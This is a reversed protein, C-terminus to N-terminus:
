AIKLYEDLKEGSIEELQAVVQRVREAVGADVDELLESLFPLSEPLLVLYEERLRDVLQAVVELALARVRPESSRTLMLAGHNLPKWLADNNAAVALALLCGVAAAGLPGSAAAAGDASTYSRTAAGLKLYATLDADAHAPSRLLPMAAAPPEAELQGLLAPHLRAFREADIFSVSDHLCCRHLARVIRLRLLWALKVQAAAQDDAGDAAAAAAAEAEALAAAASARKLKKKGRRVGGAAGDDGGLHAIASDLLYRFYPVLVSRLRDTLANVAGYLAVMRGLYSPESGGEPVSVTSAWELLRLFLPKFRAESLKMTLAVLARVAAAEVADLAADGHAALAAPRRQRVDLARLLFNFLADAYQAAVKAEMAAAAAGVMDLLAVAPAAAAAAGGCDAAADICPQLREFLAPLLLRPPVAGPLAARISAAFQDCGAVRCALVRPNLLIALVAALHPSLFGGLSEVLANLCALASSLELAADDADSSASKSRRKKSKGSAGHEDDADSDADEEDDSDTIAGAAAEADDEDEDADAMAADAAAAATGARALRGWASDAAAVAAAVTSPLVPVLKPGLARVFAAVAALASARIAAHSDKTAALVAPVGALLAAAQAQGFETAIAALAVLALQRTLPSAGADGGGGGAAAAASSLLPPLMACARGAADAAQRLKAERVRHPLEVQDAIEGRVGRVKDTFLKLARRKVKDAPHEALTLLAQLYADAAMVGQLAGFLAYLGRSAALVARSNSSAPAATATGSASTSTPQLLQMQALAAEMLARCSAELAPDAEPRRHAATAATLAVKLKLQATVFAVVIRPLATHAKRGSEVLALEMVRACCGLRVPLEVQLAVQSALEPLWVSPPPAAGAVDAPVEPAAAAAAAGKKGAKKAPTKSAAAAPAAPSPAAAHQLMVLLGDSLGQEVQPLARMLALLLDLRRHPPLGPLAGVVQEWLAAPRRGAGVWAPVVASLATAGVARSHEDDALAASQHVVALVQLVHSLAAEPMRAALAALLSLAANRVSADPAERAASVALALDFAGGDVAAAPAALSTLAQLTLTAAYGALSSKGGAADADAAAAAAEDEDLDDDASPLTSAISGVVPLLRRLLAQLAPVLAAAATIGSRWQLLELAVVADRLAAPDVPAPPAAAAATFGDAAAAGDAKKSKKKAPTPAAAAAPPPAAAAPELLPIILQASLPVAELAARAAARVAEDADGEYRSLLVAFLERVARGTPPLTALLAPTVCGVAALRAAALADSAAASTAPGSSTSSSSAPPPLLEAVEALQGIRDAHAAAAAPTYLRLVQSVAAAHGATAAAPRDRLAAVVSGLFSSAAAFLEAPPATLSAGAAAPAAPPLLCALIALATATGVADAAADTLSAALFAGVEAAAGPTLALQAGAAAADGDTTTAKAAAKGRKSPTAAPAAEAAAASGALAGRLLAATADADRCIAARHALLGSCLAAASAASLVPGASAKGGSLLPALAALVDCAAARVPAEPAALAALLTPLWGSVDAAGASVLAAQVHLALAKLPVPVKAADTSGAYIAALFAGRAAAPGVSRTVVLSPLDQLAAAGCGLAALQALVRRAGGDADHAGDADATAAAAAPMRALNARLSGVVLTVHSGAPDSSLASLLASTPLGDAAAVREAFAAFWDLGDSTSVGAAAAAASPLLAGALAVAARLLPVTSSSGGAASSKSAKVPTAAPAAAPSTAAAAHAALLAVQQARMAAAAAAGGAAADAASAAVLESLEKSRAAPDAALSKALAAVIGRAVAAAAATRQAKKSQKKSGDELAPEEATKKKGGKAPKGAAETLPGKAAAELDPLAAALGSFLPVHAKLGAAARAAEVAIRPDRGSPLLLAALQLAAAHAVAASGGGAAGAFGLLEAAKRAAKRAARLQPLKASGYLYAGLKHSLPTLADVLAAPPLAKLCSLGLAATVVSLDDDRLRELAAATLAARAESAEPAEGGAAAAAAAAGKGKKSGAAAAAAGSPAALDADLQQLAMRRVAAQPAALAAALTMMTGGCPASYGGAAFTARVFDFRARDEPELAAAAAEATEAAGGAEDDEGDEDDSGAAAAKKDAKKAGDTKQRKKRKSSEDADAPAGSATAAAAAAAKRRQERLPELFANVAADTTEPYRQDLVRLVKQCSTRVSAAEAKAAGGAELLAAALARAPEGRLAGSHALALLDAEARRAAGGSGSGGSSAASSLAAAMSRCLLQLLPGLRINPRQSLAALEGVFNPLASLYKLTKDSLTRIHPQTVAMHAMVLLATRIHEPVPETHKLMSNLLVKVFDRGLTARSCLEAVAMLTAARYDQVAGPGLGGLLHPLLTALAEEGVVPLVALVECLLVAYFSLFTRSAFGALAAADAAGGGGGLRGAAKCVFILLQKDNAARQALLDRPLSAGSTQMKALWGWLSGPPGLALTQVLRVFENTAHYPLAATLLADVNRENAKYRRILYELAKFAPPALFHNTLLLCFSSISEDLRSLLEATQMEPNIDLSARSYLSERFPRFRPELRVLEELGQAALDYITQLDVDAAKQADFLLSPKGKKLAPALAPQRQKQLAQLQQALASAM